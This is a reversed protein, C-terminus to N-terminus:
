PRGFLASLNGFPSRAVQEPTAPPEEPVVANATAPTADVSQKIEVVEDEASAPASDGSLIAALTQDFTQMRKQKQAAKADRERKDADRQAQQRDHIAKLEPSRWSIMHLGQAEVKERLEHMCDGHIRKEEGKHQYPKWAAKDALTSGPPLIYFLYMASRKDIANNCAACVHIENGNAM